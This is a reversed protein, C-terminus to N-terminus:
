DDKRNMKRNYKSRGKKAAEYAENFNKEKGQYHIKGDLGFVEWIWLGTDEHDKYAVIKVDPQEDRYM